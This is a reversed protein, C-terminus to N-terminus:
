LSCSPEGQLLLRIEGDTVDVMLGPMHEILSDLLSEVADRMRELPLTGPAELGLTEPMDASVVPAATEIRRVKIKGRLLPELFPHVTISASQFRVIEPIIVEAQHLKIHPRPLFYLSIKRTEVRGEVLRSLHATINGRVAERDVLLPPLLALVFVLAPLVAATGALRIWLSRGRNM